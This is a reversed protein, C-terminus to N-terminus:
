SRAGKVIQVFAEEFKETGAMKKLEEATGVLLLHGNRMIGIRDALSEAEDLYHTTLVITMRGKLNRILEWLDNRALVDLGVTPEDLFLVEPEAILAMALSLRRQWGGSLKGARKKLIDGLGFQEVSRTVAERIKEKSFGHVGAMLELNEKVTLNPAIATEQPAAAIVSKVAARDSVISKGRIQADGSTPAALCSLMKILTTKGAGNVGLLAFLEGDPISLDVRDVATLDKYRKTLADTRIAEM